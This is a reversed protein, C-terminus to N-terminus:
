SKGVKWIDDLQKERQSIRYFKIYEDKATDRFAYTCPWPMGRSRNHKSREMQMARETDSRNRIM